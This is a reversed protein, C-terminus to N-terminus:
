KAVGEKIIWESSAYANHAHISEQNVVEVEFADVRYDELLAEVCGRCLDEVFVPNEYAQMTVHREDTRKLLPYLPASAEWEAIKVVDEIGIAGVTTIKVHGRQNHAGYDSIAKSCPCLSTVPTSVSLRTEVGESDLRGSLNCEVPLLSRSGSVPAVKTVFHTFSLSVDARNAVLRGSLGELINEVGRQSLEHGGLLEELLRSMHTGKEIAPVEVSLDAVVVTFGGAPLRFPVKVDRVGVRPLRIGRVDPTKQIDVLESAKM